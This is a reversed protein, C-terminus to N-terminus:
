GSCSKIVCKEIKVDDSFVLILGLLLLIL